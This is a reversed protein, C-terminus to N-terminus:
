GYTSRVQSGAALRRGSRGSFCAHWDKGAGPEEGREVEGKGNVRAPVPEDSVQGRIHRPAKSGAALRANGDLGPSVRYAISYDGPEVATLKWEFTATQGGPWRASRGRTPTPARAAWPSRTSCGSRDTRTLSAPTTPARPSPSRATAPRKGKTEVTVAVDPLAEEGPNRVRIRMTSSQAITQKKPFSAGAIDVRYTGEPEDADQSEGGGCGPLVALAALLALIPFRVTM